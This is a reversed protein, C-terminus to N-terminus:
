FYLSLNSKFPEYISINRIVGFSAKFSTINWLVLVNKTFWGVLTYRVFCLNVKWHYLYFPLYFALKKKFFAADIYWIGELSAPFEIDSAPASSRPTICCEFCWWYALLISKHLFSIWSAVWFVPCNNNSDVFM